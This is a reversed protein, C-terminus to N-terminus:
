AALMTVAPLADPSALRAAIAPNHAGSCVQCRQMATRPAAEDAPLVVRLIHPARAHEKAENETV